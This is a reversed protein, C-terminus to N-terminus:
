KKIVTQRGALKKTLKEKTQDTNRRDARQGALRDRHRDYISSDFNSCM